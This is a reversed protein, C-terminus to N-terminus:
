RPGDRFPRRDIKCFLGLGGEGLGEKIGHRLYRALMGLLYSRLNRWNLPM